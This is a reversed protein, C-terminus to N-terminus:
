RSIVRPSIIRDYVKNLVDAVATSSKTAEQAVTEMLESFERRVLDERQQSQDRIERLNKAYNEAAERLKADLEARIAVERVNWQAREEAMKTAADEYRKDRADSRRFLIVIAYGFVLTAIGLPGYQLLVSTITVENSEM